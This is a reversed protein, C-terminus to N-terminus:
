WHWPVVELTGKGLRFSTMESLQTFGVPDFAFPYRHMEQEVNINFILTLIM